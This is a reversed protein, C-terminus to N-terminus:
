VIDCICAYGGLKFIDLIKRESREAINLFLLIGSTGNSRGNCECKVASFGNRESCIVVYYIKIICSCTSCLNVNLSGIFVAFAVYLAKFYATLM